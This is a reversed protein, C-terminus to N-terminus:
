CFLRHYTFDLPEQTPSIERVFFAQKKYKEYGYSLADTMAAFTGIIRTGKVLAFKGTDTKLLDPLNQEFTKVEKELM